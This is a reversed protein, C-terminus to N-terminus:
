ATIFYLTNPDKEPLATYEALTLISINPVTLKKWTGSNTLFKETETGDSDIPVLGEKTGDFVENYSIKIYTSGGFRYVENSTKDVYIKGSEGPEPFDNFSDYELVDDVYSPLQSAPVRGDILDAKRNDQLEWTNNNWKYCNIINDVSYVYAFVANDKKTYQTFIGENEKDLWKTFTCNNIIVNEVPENPIFFNPLECPDAILTVNKCEKHIINEINIHDYPFTNGNLDTCKKVWGKTNNFIGNVFWRHVANQFFLVFGTNFTRVTQLGNTDLEVEETESSNSEIIIKNNIIKLTYDKAKHYHKLGTESIFENGDFYQDQKYGSTKIEDNDEYAYLYTLDNTSNVDTITNDKTNLYKIGNTSQYIIKDNLVFPECNLNYNAEIHPISKEGLNYYINGDEENFFYLSNNVYYIKGKSSESSNTVSIVSDQVTLTELDVIRCYNVNKVKVYLKKHQSDYAMSEVSIIQGNKTTLQMSTYKNTYLMGYEDVVAILNSDVYSCIFTNNSQLLNTNPKVVKINCSNDLYKCGTPDLTYLIDAVVEATNKDILQAAPSLVSNSIATVSVYYNNPLAQLLEPKNVITGFEVKYDTIIYKHGAFLDKNICYNLLEEYTLLHTINAVITNNKLNNIEDWAGDTFKGDNDIHLKSVFLYQKDKEKVYVQTAYEKLKNICSSLELLDNYTEVVLNGGLVDESDVVALNSNNHEIKSPLKIAM